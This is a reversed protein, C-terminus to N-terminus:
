SRGGTSCRGVLTDGQYVLKLPFFPSGGSWCIWSSKQGGEWINKTLLERKDIWELVGEDCERLAGRM